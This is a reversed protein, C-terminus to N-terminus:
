TNLQYSIYTFIFSKILLIYISKKWIHSQHNIKIDYVNM